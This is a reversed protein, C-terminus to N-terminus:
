IAGEHGTAACAHLAATLLGMSTILNDTKLATHYRNESLTAAIVVDRVEGTKARALLNELLEVVDAAPQMTAPTLTKINDTM